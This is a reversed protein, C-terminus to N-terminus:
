NGRRLEDLISEIDSEYLKVAVKYLKDMHGFKEAYKVVTLEDKKKTQRRNYGECRAKLDISYTERFVQYLESWRQRYDAGKHKVVRNLVNRKTLIDIDDVMGNIVETKYQVLSEAQIRGERERKLAELASIFLDPNAILEDAAYLGHRRISPLVDSTVWRKFKKANPMKSSLILSYLGSENIIPTTQMRGISDQIPIGDVDDSDVHDQIAKTPREYGLAEAVDKGVFWPEGEHTIIRVEGFEGNQFVQMENM